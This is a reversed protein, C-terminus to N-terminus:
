PGEMEKLAVRLRAVASQIARCKDCDCSLREGDQVLASILGRAAKAVERRDQTM